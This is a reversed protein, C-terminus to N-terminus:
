FTNSCVSDFRVLADSFGFEFDNDSYLMQLSRIVILIKLTLLMLMVNVDEGGYKSFGYSFM